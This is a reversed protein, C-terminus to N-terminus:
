SEILTTFFESCNPYESEQTHFKGLCIRWAPCKVCRTNELFHKKWTQSIIKYIENESLKYFFDLTENLYTKNGFIDIVFLQEDDDIHVYKLPNAFYVDGFESYLNFGQKQKYNKVIYNFPEITGNGVKTYNHYYFLDLLKEWIMESFLIGTHFGLSTLFQISTLNEITCPLFFCINLPTFKDFKYLFEEKSGLAKAYCRIPYQTWRETPEIDIILKNEQKLWLFEIPNTKIVSDCLTVTEELESHTTIVIEKDKLKNIIKLNPPCVFTINNMMRKQKQEYFIHGADM